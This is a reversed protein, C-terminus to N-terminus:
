PKRAGAYSNYPFEVSVERDFTEGPNLTFSFVSPTLTWGNPGALKFSGGITTKGPNVFHLHRSHAEFSSELLPQDFGVSARLQATVGDIDVLLMPMPGVDLRVTDADKGEGQILPSVNGWLDVRLPRDGLNLALQKSITQGGRSWLVM